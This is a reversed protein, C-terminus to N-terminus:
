PNETRQPDQTSQAATERSRSVVSLKPELFLFLAATTPMAVCPLVERRDVPPGTFVTRPRQTNIYFNYLSIINSLGARVAVHGGAPESRHAM